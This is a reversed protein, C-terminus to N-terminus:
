TLRPADEWLCGLGVTGPAVSSRADQWLDGVAILTEGAYVMPLADRLWPLVGLAQCLHQVSQTRARPGTKLTEGGRRRRVSVTASLRKPDLGGAREAWRLAGLGAGLPLRAGPSIQWDLAEGMAPLLAPTLFLRDRYRRLVHEGWQVAPEHDAKATLIQRLAEDLRATSPPEVAAQSLWHRVVHLRERGSLARLGPVSLADGDSLREVSCRTSADLSAQAEGLHRAARALSGAAAPWRREIHPWVECRLYARDFRPDRNMPDDAAEVALTEGLRHLERPVIDLLPRVHWGPAFPRCVPMASLGKLGAGRLLQLLLTEAQDLAHHATLLCEGPQMVVAFARYRAVRATAEISAGGEVNVEVRVAELAVGFRRCLAAATDRMASSAAQLGHDVHVARLPLARRGAARAGALPRAHALAALLCSSDRGGSLGVLLGTTGPPLNDELVAWLLEASYRM